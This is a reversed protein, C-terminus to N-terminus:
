PPPSTANTSAAPVADAQRAPHWRLPGVAFHAADAPGGEAVLVAGDASVALARADTTGLLSGRAVDVVFPPVVMVSGSRLVHGLPTLGAGLLHEAGGLEHVVVSQGRLVLAREGATALIRDGAKLREVERKDLDLLVADAGPHLAVLRPSGDLWHDGAAVGLALGLPRSGERGVLVADARGKKDLCSVLALARAADVHLLRAACAKRVLPSRKGDPELRVLAGDPDREILADGLPVVLGPADVAKDGSVRSVRTEVEDGLREWAAYRPLPATCRMTPKTAERAPWDLRGNGNTDVRVVRVVVWEGSPDFEARWPDGEGPDITNELGTLLERVVIRPSTGALQFYLLRRGTPDFALVRPHLFSSLDDRLDADLFTDVRTTSDRLVLRGDRVFAIFRGSPDTGAFSDIRSGPGPEDVLFGDLEDGRLEGQAGVEGTVRGDGTTDRRAQCVAVWRRDPAAAVLTVPDPTGWV